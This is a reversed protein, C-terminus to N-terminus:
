FRRRAGLFLLGTGILLPAPAPVKAVAIGLMEVDDNNGDVWLMFSTGVFETDFVFVEEEFPSLTFVDIESAGLVPSGSSMDVVSFNIDDSDDLDGVFIDLLRVEHSFTFLLGEDPDDAYDSSSGGDLDNGEGPSSMVGLGYYDQYVGVDTGTVQQWNQTQVQEDNYSTTWASVTLDVGNDEFQMTENVTAVGGNWLPFVHITNAAVSASFLGGILATAAFFKAKM